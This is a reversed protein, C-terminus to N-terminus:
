GVTSTAVAQGTGAGSVTVNLTATYLGAPTAAPVRYTTSRVLTQGPTLHFALPHTSKNIGPGTVNITYVLDVASAQSTNTLTV